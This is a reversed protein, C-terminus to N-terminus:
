ALLRAIEDLLEGVNAARVVRPLDFRVAFERELEMVFITHSLSDWGDIDAATTALAIEDARCRFTAAAVKQVRALLASTGSATM